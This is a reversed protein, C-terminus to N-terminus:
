QIKLKSWIKLLAFIALISVSTLLIAQLFEGYIWYGTAFLASYIAFAGLVMCVIGIPVDWSKGSNGGL